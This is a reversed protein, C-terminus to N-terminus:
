AHLALARLPVQRGKLATATVQLIAVVLGLGCCLLAVSTWLLVRLGFVLLVGCSSNDSKDGGPEAASSRGSRHERREVPRPRDADFVGNCEEAKGGGHFRIEARLPPTPPTRM